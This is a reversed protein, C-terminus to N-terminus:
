RKRKNPCWGNCNDGLSTKALVLRGENLLEVEDAERSALNALVVVMERFGSERMGRNSKLRSSVGLSRLYQQEDTKADPTQCTPTSLLTASADCLWM